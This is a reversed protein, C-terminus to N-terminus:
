MDFSPSLLMQKRSQTYTDIAKCSSNNNRVHVYCIFKIQLKYVIDSGRHKIQERIINQFLFNEKKQTVVEFSISSLSFRIKSIHIQCKLRINKELLKQIISLKGLKNDIYLQMVLFPM